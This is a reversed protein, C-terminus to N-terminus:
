SSRHINLKEKIKAWPTKPGSPTKKEEGYTYYRDYKFETYDPSIEAQLKNLVVGMVNAKVSELQDKARKLGGRAIKGVHYVLIVGDMKSAMISADAAALAPSSDFLIVDYVERVQSIFDEMRKSNLIEAPNPSITGSTIININDIGPTMMIDEIKMGGTVFDTITRVVDRWEYNGLIVDSLGPIKDIGFLRSIMPKRLDSEILLV